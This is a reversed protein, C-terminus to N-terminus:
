NRGKLHDTSRSQLRNFLDDLCDIKLRIIQMRGTDDPKCDSFETLYGARLEKFLLIVQQDNVLRHATSAEM